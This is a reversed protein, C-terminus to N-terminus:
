LRCLGFFCRSFLSTKMDYAEHDYKKDDTPIKNCTVFTCLIIMLEPKQILRVKQLNALILGAKMDHFESKFIKNYNLLHKYTILISFSVLFNPDLVLKVIIGLFLSFKKVYGLYKLFTEVLCMTASWQFHLIRDLHRIWLDIQVSIITM